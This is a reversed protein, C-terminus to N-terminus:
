PQLEMQMRRENQVPSLDGARTTTGSLVIRRKDGCYALTVRDMQRTVKEPFYKLVGGVTLSTSLRVRRKGVFGCVEYHAQQTVKTAM